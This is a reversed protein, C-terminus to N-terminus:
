YDFRHGLLHAVSCPRARKLDISNPISWAAPQYSLRDWIMKLHDTESHCNKLDLLSRGMLSRQFRTLMWKRHAHSGHIPARHAKLRKTLGVTRGGSVPHVSM